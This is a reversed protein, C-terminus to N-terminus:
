GYSRFTFDFLVRNQGSLFIQNAAKIARATLWSNIAQSEAGVAAGTTVAPGQVSTGRVDIGAGVVRVEQLM